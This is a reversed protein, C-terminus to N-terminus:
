VLILSTQLVTHAEALYHVKSWLKTLANKAKLDNM